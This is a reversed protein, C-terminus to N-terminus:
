GAPVVRRREGFRRALAAYRCRNSNADPELIGMAVLHVHHATDVNRPALQLSAGLCPCAPLKGVTLRGAETFPLPRRRLRDVAARTRQALYRNAPRDEISPRPRFRPT